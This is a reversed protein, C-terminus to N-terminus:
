GKALDATWLNLRKVLVKACHACLRVVMNRLDIVLVIEQDRRQCENCSGAAQRSQVTVNM